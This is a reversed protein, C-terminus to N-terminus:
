RSSLRFRSATPRPPRRGAVRPCRAHQFTRRFSCSKAGCDLIGQEAGYAVQGIADREHVCDWGGADHTQVRNSGVNTVGVKLTPWVRHQLLYVISPATFDYPHHGCRVCGIISAPDTWNIKRTSEYGCELCRVLIARHTSTFPELLEVRALAARREIEDAEM